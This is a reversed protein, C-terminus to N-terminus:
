SKRYEELQMKQAPLLLYYTPPCSLEPKGRCGARMKDTLHDLWQFFKDKGAFAKTYRALADSFLASIESDSLFPGGGAAPAVHHKKLLALIPVDSDCRGDRIAYIGLIDGAGAIYIRAADSEYKAYLTLIKPLPKYELLIKKCSPLLEATPLSDFRVESPDFYLGFIPETVYAEAGLAPTALVWAVTLVAFAKLLFRCLHGHLTLLERLEGNM